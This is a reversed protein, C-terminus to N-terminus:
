PRCNAIDIVLIDHAGIKQLKDMINGSEKTPIMAGISVWDPNELPTITPATKGPTIESALSLNKREINYYMMCYKKALLYGEIRKRIVEVLENHRSHPNKILVAETTLITGIEGLGAAQATGGTEILDVVGQSLGLGCAAEVSGAIVRITPM